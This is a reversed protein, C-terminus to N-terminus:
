LAGPEDASDPPVSRFEDPAPHEKSRGLPDGCVQYKFNGIQVEDGPRLQGEAVREGNIRVGNTSGLDRILLVDNVQAVVCHRRSVKKSNLQVDCEEHRGFLLIPKDIQVSPGDTLSLLHTAM